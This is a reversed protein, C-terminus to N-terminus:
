GEIAETIARQADDLADAASQLNEAAREMAEGNETQQLGEPMNDYSAQEDAQHDGVM